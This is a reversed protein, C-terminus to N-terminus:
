EALKFNLPNEGSPHKKLLDAASPPSILFISAGDPRKFCTAASIDKQEHSAIIGLALSVFPSSAGTDGLSPFLNYGAKALDLDPGLKVMALHLPVVGEAQGPQYSCDYFVRAPKQGAPLADLAAQWAQAFAAARGQPGMPQGDPQLYSAYQPRHVYGLVPLAEFQGVQETNWAVPLWQTPQFPVKPTKPKDWFPVLSWDSKDMHAAYPKLATMRDQRALVLVVMADDLEDTRRWGDQLFGDTGAARLRDRATLGDIMVLTVAPVEPHADFFAFVKALVLDPYDTYITEVVSVHTFLLGAEHVTGTLESEMDADKDEPNHRAPAVLIVPVAINEAYWSLAHELADAERKIYVNMKGTAAPSSRKPDTPFIYSDKPKSTMEQWIRTQRFHEVSLGLGLVELTFAQHEREAKAQAAAARAQEEQARTKAAETADFSHQRALAVTGSLAFLGFLALAPPVFYHSLRTAMTVREPSLAQPQIFLELIVVWLPTLLLFAVLYRWLKPGRPRRRLNPEARPSAAASM